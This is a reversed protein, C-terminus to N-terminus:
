ASESIWAVGGNDHWGDGEKLHRKPKTCVLDASKECCWEYGDNNLAM